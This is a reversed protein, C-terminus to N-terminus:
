LMYSVIESNIIIELGMPHFSGSIHPNFKDFKHISKGSRVYWLVGDNLVLDDSPHFTARNDQYSNVKDADYLKLITDGTAVDIIQFFCYKCVAYHRYHGQYSKYTSFPKFTLIFHRGSFQNQLVAFFFQCLLHM